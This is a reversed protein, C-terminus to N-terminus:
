SEIDVQQMVGAIVLRRFGFATAPRTIAINYTLKIIM